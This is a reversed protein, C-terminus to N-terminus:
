TDPLYYSLQTKILLLNGKTVAEAPMRNSRNFEFDFERNVYPELLGSLQEFSRKLYQYLKRLSHDNFSLLTNCELRRNWKNQNDKAHKNGGLCWASLGSGLGAGMEELIARGMGICDDEVVGNAGSALSM